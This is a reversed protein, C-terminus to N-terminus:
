SETSFPIKEFLSDGILSVKNEKRNKLKRRGQRLGQAIDLPAFDFPAKRTLNKTGKM